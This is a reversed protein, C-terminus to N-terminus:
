ASKASKLMDQQLKKRVKGKQMNIRCKTMKEKEGPDHKTGDQKSKFSERRQFSGVSGSHLDEKSKLQHNDEGQDEGLDGIEQHLVMLQVAHDEICHDKPTVSM